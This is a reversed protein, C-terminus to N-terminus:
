GLGYQIMLPSPDISRAYFALSLAIGLAITCFGIIAWVSHDLSERTGSASMGRGRM